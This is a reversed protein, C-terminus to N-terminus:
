DHATALPKGIGFDGYESTYHQCESQYGSRATKLLTTSNYKRGYNGRKAFAHSDLRHFPRTEFVGLRYEFRGEALISQRLDNV